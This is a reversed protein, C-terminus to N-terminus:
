AKEKKKKKKKELSGDFTSVTSLTKNTETDFVIVNGKEDRGFKRMAEKRGRM